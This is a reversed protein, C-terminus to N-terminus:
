KEASNKGYTLKFETRRNKSHKEESCPTANDCANLLKKEGYGIGIIRSRSIGRSVIYDVAYNARKKSLELNYADNARSDTHSGIELALRTNTKMAYIAKDLRKQGISDFKYDDTDYYINEIITVTEDPKEMRSVELWPDDVHYEGMWAKDVELLKYEFRGNHLVVRKYIRKKSDAIYLVADSTDTVFEIFGALDEKLSKFTFKGEEGTKIIEKEKGTSDRLTLRINKLPKKNEGYIYGSLKIALDLDTILLEPMLNKEVPLIKYEFKDKGVYFTKIIKGDCAAMIVRTNSPLNLDQEDMDLLYTKEPDLNRFIFCGSQNVSISDITKGQSDLLRIRINELPIDGKEGYRLKGALTLKESLEMTQLSASDVPVKRFIHKKGESLYATRIIKGDKGKLYYSSKRTLTQDNTEFYAIYHKEPIVNRFKFFGLKTTSGSDLLNNKSDLLYIKKNAVPKLKSQNQFCGNHDLVVNEDVELESLTYKEPPLLKFKFADKGTIFLKLKKGNKDSLTVITGYPLNIGEEPIEVLYSQDGPLNKFVFSGFENTTASEVVDGYNNILNIKANAIFLAPNNSYTLIGSLSLDDDSYIEQLVSKELPLNKFIFRNEGIGQSVRVIEDDDNALYFRAKEKMEADQPEVSLMFTKEGYLNMFEFLGQSTTHLSDIREGTSNMLYVLTNKAPDKMNETLLLKGSVRTAQSNFSFTYIDDGGNRNSSFYGSIANAFVIGFDDGSSNLPQGENKKLLWKGNFFYSSFIDFGGISNHGMSSFFLIGDDRIYPYEEDANTNIGAGLNEPKAWGLSTKHCVYIDKGGYGGEMDSSFFLLKGDKSLSAHGTSYLDSNYPFPTTEWWVNAKKEFVYLKAKNVFDRTKNKYEVRTLYLITQDTNLAVPGDHYLGNIKTSFPKINKITNNIISAQFVDTYPIQNLDVSPSNNVLDKAQSAVFLIGNGYPVACFESAATNVGNLLDVTYEPKLHPTKSTDEIAPQWAGQLLLHFFLSIISFKIKM